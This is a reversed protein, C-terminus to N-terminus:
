KKKRTLLYIGALAVVGYIFNNSVGATTEGGSAEETSETVQEAIDTSTELIQQAKSGSPVLKSALKIIPLMATIYPAAATAAATITAPDFGIAGYKRKYKDAFKNVTSILVRANGGMSCWKNLAKERTSQNRLVHYMKLGINKVNLRILLLFAKRGAILPPAYKPLNRGSCNEGTRRSSRRQQRQKKGSIVPIGYMSENNNYCSSKCNNCGIGSIHYLAMKPKKDTKNIYPKKQNFSSLVADCWIEGDKTKVVVYVHHPTTNFMKYNAFRYTWDAKCYGKRNWSDILGGFVSSYHKCDNKGDSYKGTAFIAAPSKISQRTDPEIDYKVNEKLYNFVYKCSNIINGKWFSDSIKDYDKNWKEHGKILEKIIDDTQQYDTVKVLNNKYSSLKGLLENRM